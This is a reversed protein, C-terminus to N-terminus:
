PITPLPRGARPCKAMELEIPELDRKILYKIAEQKASLRGEGLKVFIAGDGEDGASGAM